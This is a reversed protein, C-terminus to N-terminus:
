PTLVTPRWPPPERPTPQESYKGWQTLVVIHARLEGNESQLADVRLELRDIKQDRAEIKQDQVELKADQQSIRELLDDRFNDSAASVLQGRSGRTSIFAVLVTGIAACLAAIIVPDVPAEAM